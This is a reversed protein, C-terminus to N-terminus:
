ENDVLRLSFYREYLEKHKEYDRKHAPSNAIADLAIRNLDSYARILIARSKAAVELEKSPSIIKDRGASVKKERNKYIIYLEKRLSSVESFGGKIYEDSYEKFTNLSMPVIGLSKRKTKALDNQNKSQAYIWDYSVDSSNKAKKMQEYLNKISKKKDRDPYKM